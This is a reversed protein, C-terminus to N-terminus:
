GNKIKILMEIYVRSKKRKVELERKRAEALSEFEEYYVLEWPIGLRVYKNKGRNHEKLRRELNNTSGIYYRDLKRSYIVYFYGKM